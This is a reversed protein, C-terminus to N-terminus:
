KADYWTEGYNVDVKLPVDLKLANEMVNAVLKQMTELEDEPVEFM